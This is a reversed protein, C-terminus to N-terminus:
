NWSGHFGQMLHTLQGIPKIAGATSGGTSLCESGHVLIKQMLIIHIICKYFCLQCNWSGYFGQMMYILQRIPKVAGATSGGTSPYESAHIFIIGYKGLRSITYLVNESGQIM